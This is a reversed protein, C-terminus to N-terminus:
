IKEYLIRETDNVLKFYKDVFSICLFDNKIDENTKIGRYKITYMTRGRFQRFGTITILTRISWGFSIAIKSKTNIVDGIKFRNAM